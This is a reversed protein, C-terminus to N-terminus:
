WDNQRCYDTYLGDLLNATGKLYVPEIGAYNLYASIEEIQQLIQRNRDINLQLLDELHEALEVSFCGTLEREKLRKFVAPIILHNSSLQIFKLLLEENSEVKHCFDFNFDSNQDSVLVQFALKYLNSNKM